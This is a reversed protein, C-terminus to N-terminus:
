LRRGITRKVNKQHQLKGFNVHWENLDKYGAYLKSADSYKLSRKQAFELWKKGAHDNDLYLQIDDHSEMLQVTGKFFSLSNLVLLNQLNDDQNQHISQYSLFDFFGEFVSIRAADNDIYTIEKPSSSGKFYDNRLEYGGTNNKFGVARHVREKEGAIFHVEDCWRDAVGKGINRQRIYRALMPDEIVHKVSVIRIGTDDADVLNALHKERSHLDPNVAVNKGAPLPRFSSLKRLSESVDCQHLRMVFNILTGGEGIGHDFWVNKSREVKFSANKENRFPSLFWYDNRRVKQPKYGLIVLYDVMDIQNAEACNM